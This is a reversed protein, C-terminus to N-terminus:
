GFAVRSFSILWGEICIKADDDDDDHMVNAQDGPARLRPLRAPYSRPHTEHSLPIGQDPSFGKEQRTVRLPTQDFAIGHLLLLCAPRIMFLSAHLQLGFTPTHSPDLYTHPLPSLSGQLTHTQCIENSM